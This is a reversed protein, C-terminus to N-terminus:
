ECDRPMRDAIHRALARAVPYSAALASGVLAGCALLVALPWGRALAGPERPPALRLLAATVLGVATSGCLIIRQNVGVQGHPSLFLVGVSAVACLTATLSGLLISRGDM